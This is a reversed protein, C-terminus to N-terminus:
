DEEEIEPEDEPTSLRILRDIEVLMATSTTNLPGDFAVAAVEIM